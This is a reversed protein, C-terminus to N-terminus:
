KTRKELASLKEAIDAVVSVISRELKAVRQELVSTQVPRVVRREVRFSQELRASIEANMTRNNGRAATEIKQRLDASLRVKMDPANRLTIM